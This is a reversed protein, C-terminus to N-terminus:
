APKVLHTLLLKKVIMGSFDMVFAHDFHSAYLVVSTEEHIRLMSSEVSGDLVMLIWAESVDNRWRPLDQEKECLASLILENTTEGVWACDSLGWFPPGVGELLGGTVCLIEEPWHQGWYDESRLCFTDGAQVSLRSILDVLMKAIVDRRSVPVVINKVFHVSVHFFQSSVQSHLKAASDVIAQCTGLRQRSHSGSRREDNFLRRVEIGITMQGIKAIVDPPDPGLHLESRCDLFGAIQLLHVARFEFDQKGM